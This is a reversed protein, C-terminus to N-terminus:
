GHGVNHELKYGHHKLVNNDEKEIKWRARGCAALPKVNGADIRKNTIWRNYYTRKGKEENLISMELYNVMLAEEAQETYRILAGNMWRCIYVLHYRGNWERHNWERKESHEVTEHLCPHTRDKCTFIFSYGTEVVQRCYPEPSYVM